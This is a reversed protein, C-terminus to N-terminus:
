YMQALKELAAGREAAEPDNNDIKRILERICDVEEVEEMQGWKTRIDISRQFYDMAEVKRSLRLLFFGFNEM